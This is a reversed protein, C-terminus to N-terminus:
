LLTDESRYGYLRYAKPGFNILIQLRTKSGNLHKAPREACPVAQVTVRAELRRLIQFLWPLYEHPHAYLSEPTVPTPGLDVTSVFNDIRSCEIPNGRINPWTGEGASAKEYAYKAIKRRNAVSIDGLFWEDPEDSFRVFFYDTTRREFNDTVHNRFNVVYERAIATIM